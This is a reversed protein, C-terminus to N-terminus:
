IANRNQKNSKALELQVVNKKEEERLLLHVFDIKEKM